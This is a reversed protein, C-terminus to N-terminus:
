RWEVQMMAPMWPLRFMGFGWPLEALLIDATRSEVRLLWDGDHTSSLLGPRTLFEGRLGAPSTDRLATWHGIVAELLATAEAIQETGLGFERPVPEDLGVGCLVKALTLRHEPATPEGTALHHLLGVARPPDLLAGGRAVGLGELFRPLFPHLLMLGASDVLIGHEPDDVDAVRAVEISVARAETTSWGPIPAPDASPPETSGPWHRELVADLAQVAPAQMPTEALRARAQAVLQAASPRASAIAAALAVQAVERLLVDTVGRPAGTAPGILTGSVAEVAAATDPAIVGLVLARFAASFQLVLRTRAQPIRLVAALRDRLGASLTLPHGAAAWSEMIMGETSTGAPVDSWWPLRGTALFAVLAEDRAQATTRRAVRDAPGGVPASLSGADSGLAPTARRRFWAALERRVQEALEVEFRDLDVFVEIELRDIGLHADGPDYPALASEIAPALVVTCIGPLRRQLDLGEAQTGRVEVALVQRRITIAAPGM